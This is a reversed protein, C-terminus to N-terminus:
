GAEQPQADDSDTSVSIQGPDLAPEVAVTPAGWATYHRALWSLLGLALLALM